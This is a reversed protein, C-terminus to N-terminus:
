SSPVSEPSGLTCGACDLASRLKEQVVRACLAGRSLRTDFWIRPSLPSSLILSCRAREGSVRLPMSNCVEKMSTPKPSAFHHRLTGPGGGVYTERGAPYHKSPPFCRSADLCCMLIDSPPSVSHCSSAVVTKKLSNDEYNSSMASRTPREKHAFCMGEAM